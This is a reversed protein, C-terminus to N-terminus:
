KIGSVLWVWGTMTAVAFLTSLAVTSSSLGVGIRYRQALLYANVGSPCAAFIVAVAAWVPPMPFVHFALLYV